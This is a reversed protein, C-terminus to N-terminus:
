SAAARREIRQRRRRTPTGAHFVLAGRAAATTSATSRIARDRRRGPLGGGGARRRGDRGAPGAAPRRGATTGAVGDALHGRAAALLIPGLSGALRPLIAQTEPDGFRANCELLVPGDATLMLGAYLAGRFPRGAARWSPSSRGTSRRSSTTSARRGLPGPLPRTPAWAWRHEARRRRRAPAQPRAGAPARGRRARRVPRHREGRSGVLREEVVVWPAGPDPGVTTALEAIAREADAASDCVTVGKGAALGDAKVVVGRGSAALGSAFAIAASADTFAEARAMRVGAAAAVEHCFAKSSRSGHRPPRPGSCPSAAGRAPRRGRRRGAAGRTRDRGARGGRSPRGGRDGRRRAPRCRARLAGAARARDRRQRARRRDRQCGARGGAELGARARAGGGGVILIRTPAMLSVRPLGPRHRMPRWAREITQTREPGVSVLVIPVGAHEEIASVYRRANEPLDALSRVDHIPESWGPFEAYVPVARSLAAGSSPWTEVRRGDLEYAVCLRIPDVGSLIDLKNLM